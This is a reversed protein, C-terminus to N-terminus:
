LRYLHKSIRSSTDAIAHSVPDDALHAYRETTTARAHGLSAGVIYLSHGANVAFSAFTHRLDHLRVDPIGAEIRIANWIKQLGVLHGDTTLSPFVWDSGDLRPLADVITWADASLRLPKRGTKSDPLQAIGTEPRLYSYKLSLIENKRAGSVALLRIAGVAYLNIGAREAENLAKGLAELEDVSLYREKPKEPFKKVGFVPNDDREGMEVAHSMMSSLLRLSRNAVSPGGKVVAKGRKSTKETVATQGSAIRHAMKSVDSKTLARVSMKGILPIIQRKLLGSELDITKPKKRVSTARVYDQAFEEITPSTAPKSNPLEGEFYLTALIESAKARAVDLTLPSGYVGLSKRVQPKGPAPRKHVVFSKSGNPRIRVGFGSLRNDWLFYDKERPEARDVIRKTLTQAMENTHVM